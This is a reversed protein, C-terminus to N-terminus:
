PTEWPATCGRTTAAAWVEHLVRAAHDRDEDSRLVQTANPDFTRRAGDPRIAVLRGRAWSLPDDAM